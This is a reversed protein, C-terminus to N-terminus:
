HCIIYRIAVQENRILSIQTFQRSFSLWPSIFLCDFVVYEKMWVLPHCIISSIEPKVVDTTNQIEIAEQFTVPVNSLDDQSVEVSDTRVTREEIDENDCLQSSM